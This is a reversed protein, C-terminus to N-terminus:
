RPINIENVTELEDDKFLFYDRAIGNSLLLKIKSVKGVTGNNDDFKEYELLVGLIPKSPHQIYSRNLKVLSGTKIPDKGSGLEMEVGIKRRLYMKVLM